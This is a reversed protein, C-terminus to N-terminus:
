LCIKRNLYHQHQDKDQRHDDVAGEGGDVQEVDRGGPGDGLDQGAGGASHHSMIIYHLSMFWNQIM